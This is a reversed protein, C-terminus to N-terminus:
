NLITKFNDLKYDVYGDDRPFILSNGVIIELVNAQKPIRITSQMKYM